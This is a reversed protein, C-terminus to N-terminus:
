LNKVDGTWLHMSTPMSIKGMINRINPHSNMMLLCRLLEMTIVKKRFNDQGETQLLIKFRLMHINNERCKHIIADLYFSQLYNRPGHTKPHWSVLNEEVFFKIPTYSANQFIEHIADGFNDFKLLFLWRSSM